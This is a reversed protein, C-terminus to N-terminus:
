WCHVFLYNNNCQTFHLLLILMEKEVGIAPIGSGLSLSYERPVPWSERSSWGMRWPLSGTNVVRALMHM